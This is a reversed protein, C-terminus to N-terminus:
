WLVRPSLLIEQLCRNQISLTLKCRIYLRYTLVVCWGRSLLVNRKLQDSIITKAQLLNGPRGHRHTRAFIHEEPDVLLLRRYDGVILGTDSDPSDLAAITITANTYITCMRAAEREWDAASDQIICLSDVWIYPISMDRALLIADRISAPLSEPLFGRIREKLTAITTTFTQSSGWCYSLAAYKGREGAETEYLRVSHASSGVDIVRTPLEQHVPPCRQSHHEICSQLWRTAQRAYDSVTPNPSVSALLPIKLRRASSELISKTRQQAPTHFAKKRSV